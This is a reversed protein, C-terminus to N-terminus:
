RQLHMKHFVKKMLPLCFEIYTADKRIHAISLYILLSLPAGILIIMWNPINMFTLFYCPACALISFIAYPMYDKMQSLYGLGFLKGSYYTNFILAIQEYIVKSICIGIVGFPIALLIMSISILRKYVELKLILDSKGVVKMLNLNLKDIHDFMASFIYIQLFIICAAWKETLMLLIIPKGLAGLLVLPFMIAFSTCRIYKRYIAVLHVTDDQIKALIPYIVRDLIGLIISSPFIALQTGRTYNGLDKASFFKGIIIPTLNAYIQWLIGSMLLKGGFGFLEKFSKKSFILLPHWKACIWVLILHFIRSLVAQFVLAWVGFGCYALILGIIGSFITSLVNIKALTKFDLKVLLRNIQVSEFAGIVLTLTYIKVISTLIPMKFFDAIWPSCLFLAIYCLLSIGINFYFVTSCDTDSLDKKRIIAQGFGSDIFTNSIAIFVSLVGITGYDTPNLLRALVIGLIFTIAHNSISEIATWKVGSITQRKIGVSM